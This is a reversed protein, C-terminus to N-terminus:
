VNNTTINLNRADTATKALLFSFASQYNYDRKNRDITLITGSFAAKIVNENIKELIIVRINGRPPVSCMWDGGDCWYGKEDVEMDEFRKVKSPKENYYYGYDDANTRLEDNWSVNYEKLSRDTDMDEKRIFISCDFIMSFVPDYVGSTGDVPSYWTSSTKADPNTIIYKLLVCEYRTTETDMKILIHTPKNKDDYEIYYKNLVMDNTKM